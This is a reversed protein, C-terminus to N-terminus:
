RRPLAQLDAVTKEVDNQETAMRAERIAKLGHRSFRINRM